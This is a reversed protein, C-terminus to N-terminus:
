PQVPPPTKRRSDEPMKVWESFEWSPPESAYLDKRKYELPTAPAGLYSAATHVVGGNVEAVKSIPALFDTWGPDRLLHHDVIIMPILRALSLMNTLAKGIAEDSVRYGRLYIPPGGIVALQPRWEEILRMTSTAMPGQIDSTFLVKEGGREILLMLVWGLMSDQEGHPVPESFKLETEGFTFTSGDAERANIGRESLGKWFLWGRRRQSLNVKGRYSKALVEKGQYLVEAEEVTSGTWVSEDFFPTYHDYHYHTVALVSAGGAAELLRRRLRSRAKYEEPHPLLSFRPGLSLGPDILIDVDPSEVLTCMSRVGMSEFAIPRVRISPM